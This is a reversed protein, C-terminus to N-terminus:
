NSKSGCEDAGVADFATDSADGTTQLSEAAKATGEVDQKQAAALLAKTDKSAQDYSALAKEWQPKVDDAPSLDGLQGRQDDIYGEFTEAFKKTAAADELNPEGLEKVKPNFEACIENAKKALDGKALAESESDGCGAAAIAVTALASLALHKKFM